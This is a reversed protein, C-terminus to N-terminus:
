DEPNGSFVDPTFIKSPGYNTPMFHCIRPEVPSTELKYGYKKAIGMCIPVQGNNFEILGFLAESMALQECKQEWEPDNGSIQIEM